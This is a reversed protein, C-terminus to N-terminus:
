RNSKLGRGIIGPSPMFPQLVKLCDSSLRVRLRYPSAPFTVTSQVKQGGGKPNAGAQLAQGTTNRSSRLPPFYM